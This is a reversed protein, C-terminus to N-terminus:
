SNTTEIVVSLMLQKSKCMHQLKSKYIQEKQQNSKVTMQIHKMHSNKPKIQTLLNCIESSDHPAKKLTAPTQLEWM